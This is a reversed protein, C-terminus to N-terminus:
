KAYKNVVKLLKENETKTGITIRYMTDSFRRIYIKEDVLADYIKKDMKVFIFNAQSPYVCFNLAKLSNYLKDRENKVEEIKERYLDYNSIAIGALLQSPISLSYPPKIANIMDINDNNSIAYGCRISALAMAKSFTRYVILNDYRLALDTPDEDAFDIYALDLLVLSTTSTILRIIESKALAQGTPNNPSCILVLKPNHKNIYVLMRDINFSYDQNFDVSIFSANHLEAFVKYMSFSPSFSLVVDNAELVARFTVELLEDSGVGCTVNNIGVNFKKAIAECLRANQMDPYRNFSIKKIKSNFEDLIQKPPLYPAENANLIIGDTIEKSFYPIMGNFSKKM